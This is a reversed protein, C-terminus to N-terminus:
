EGYIMVELCKKLDEISARNKIVNLGQAVSIKYHRPSLDFREDFLVVECGEVTLDEKNRTRFDIWATDCKGVNNFRVELMNHKAYLDLTSHIVGDAMTEILIRSVHNSLILLNM